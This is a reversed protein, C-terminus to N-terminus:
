RSLRSQRRRRRSPSTGTLICVLISSPRISSMRRSTTFPFSGSILPRDRGQAAVHVQRGPRRVHHIPELDGPIHADGRCAEVVAAHLRLDRVHALPRPAHLRFRVRVVHRRIKARLETELAALEGQLLPAEANGACGHPHGSGIAQLGFREFEVAGEAHLRRNGLSGAAAHFPEEQLRDIREEALGAGPGLQRNPHAAMAALRLESEVDALRERRAAPVGPQLRRDVVSSAARLKTSPGSAVRLKLM